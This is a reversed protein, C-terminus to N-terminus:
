LNELGLPEPTRRPGRPGRHQVPGDGVWASVWDLLLFSLDNGHPCLPQAM